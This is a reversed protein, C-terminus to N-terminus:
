RPHKKSLKKLTAELGQVKEALAKSVPDDKAVGLETLQQLSAKSVSLMKTTAQKEEESAFPPSNALLSNLTAQADEPERPKPLAEEKLGKLVEGAKVTWNGAVKALSDPVSIRPPETESENFTKAVQQLVTPKADEADPDADKTKAAKLEALRQKRLEALDTSGPAKDQDGGSSTPKSNTPGPTTAKGKGTGKTSKGAGKTAKKSEELAAEFAWKVLQEVPPKTSFPRRCDYCCSGTGWTCAKARAARCDSWTCTRALRTEEPTKARSGGTDSKGKSKGAGKSPRYESLGLANVVAGELARQLFSQGGAKGGKGGGKWAM